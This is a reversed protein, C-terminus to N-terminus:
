NNSNPNQISKKNLIKNILRRPHRFYGAIIKKNKRREAKRKKRDLLKKVYESCESFDHSDSARVCLNNLRKLKIDAFRAVITSEDWCFQKKLDVSYYYQTLMTDVWYYLERRTEANYVGEYYYKKVIDIALACSNIYKWRKKDDKINTTANDHFRYFYAVYDYLRDKPHYLRTEFNFISDEGYILGEYFMIRHELVFSRKLLTRTIISNKYPYNSKVSRDKLKKKEDDNLFDHFCYSKVKIRDYEKNILYSKLDCIVYESILDDSDVFWLYNGTAMEIGLNRARSVGGNAVDIIKINKFRAAYANLIKLSDDTSGDNICIIEYEDLMINQSLCSDLCESIYLDSNYVPIIISLLLPNGM